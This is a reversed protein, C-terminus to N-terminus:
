KSVSNISRWAKVQKRIVYEQMDFDSPYETAAEARIKAMVEAPVGNSPKEQEIAPAKIMAAMELKEIRKELEAIKKELAAPDEALAASLPFLLLAAITRIKM